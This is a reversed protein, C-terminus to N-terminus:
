ESFGIARKLRVRFTDESPGNLGSCTSPDQEADVAAATSAVTKFQAALDTDVPGYSVLLRDKDGIVLNDVRDVKQGNLMFMMKAQDNNTYLTTDTHIFDPGINWGINEFFDAYSVRKDHVHIVDNVNDHMHVRGKVNNDYASTCAAIEEYYGPGAFEERQGNIYVAFNAHYHTEAPHVLLFRLTGFWLVGVIFGILLLSLGPLNRRLKGGLTSIFSTAPPPTPNKAM